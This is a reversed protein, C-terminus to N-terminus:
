EYRLPHPVLLHFAAKPLTPLPLVIAKVLVLFLNPLQTPVDALLPFVLLARTVANGIVAGLLISLFVFFSAM